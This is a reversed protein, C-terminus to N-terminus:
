GTTLTVATDCSEVASHWTCVLTHKLFVQVLSHVHLRIYYLTSLIIVIFRIGTSSQTVFCLQPTSLVMAMEAMQLLPQLHPCSARRPRTAM